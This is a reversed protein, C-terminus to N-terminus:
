QKTKINININIYSLLFSVFLEDIKVTGVGYYVFLIENRPEYVPDYTKGGGHSNNNVVIM